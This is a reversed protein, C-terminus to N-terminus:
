KELRRAALELDLMDPCLRLPDSSAPCEKICIENCLRYRLARLRASLNPKTPKKTTM